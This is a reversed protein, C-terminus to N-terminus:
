KVLTVTVLAGRAFSAQCPVDPAYQTGGKCGCSGPAGCGTPSYGCPPGSRAVCVDCAVPYVGYVGANADPGDTPGLAGAGGDPGGTVGISLDHNWGNVLSINATDESWGPISTNVEALSAGCGPPADFAITLNMPAGASPLLQSAGPALPFSCGSPTPACFPWDAPGVGSNSGFSVQVTTPQTATNLVVVSSCAGADDPSPGADGPSPPCGGCASLALCLAPLTPRM